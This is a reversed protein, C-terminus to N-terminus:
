AQAYKALLARATALFRGGDHGREKMQKLWAEIVPETGKRWRATEEV